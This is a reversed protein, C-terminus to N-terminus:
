LVDSRMVDNNTFTVLWIIVVHLAYMLSPTAFMLSISRHTTEQRTQSFEDFSDGPFNLPHSGLILVTKQRKSIIWVKVQIFGLSYFGMVDVDQLSNM